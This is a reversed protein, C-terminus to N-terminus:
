LLKSDHKVIPLYNPSTNQDYDEDTDAQDDIVNSAVSDFNQLNNGNDSSYEENYLQNDKSKKQLEIQPEEEDNM